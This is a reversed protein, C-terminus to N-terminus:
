SRLWDFAVKMARFRQRIDNIVREQAPTLARGRHVQHEVSEVFRLARRVEYDSGSDSKKIFDYLDRLSQLQEEDVKPPSKELRVKALIRNLVEGQKPSLKKGRSLQQHLSSLFNNDKWNPIEEINSILEPDPDSYSEVERGQAIEEFFSERKKYAEYAQIIARTLNKQWGKTRNIRSQGIYDKMKKNALPRMKKVLSVLSLHIAGKGRDVVSGQSGISTSIKLAVNDSFPILYIGEYRRDRRFRFKSNLKRAVGALFYEMEERTIQVYNM